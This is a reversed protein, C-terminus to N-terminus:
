EASYRRMLAARGEAILADPDKRLQRCFDPRTFAEWARTIAAKEDGLRPFSAALKMAGRWDGANMLNRLVSLKTEM